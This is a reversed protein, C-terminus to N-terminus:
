ASACEGRKWRHKKGFRKGPKLHVVEGPELTREVNDEDIEIVGKSADWGGLEAIQERTIEEDHWEYTTGEIDLFFTSGHEHHQPGHQHEHPHNM